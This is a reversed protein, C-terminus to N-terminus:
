KFESTWGKEKGEDLVVLLESLTMGREEILKQRLKRMEALYIKGREQGKVDDDDPSSPMKEDLIRKAEAVLGDFAACIAKRDDEGVRELVLDPEKYKKPDDLYDRLDGPLRFSKGTINELAARLSKTCKPRYRWAKQAALMSKGKSEAARQDGGGATGTDVNVSVNKFEKEDPYMEWWLLMKKMASDEAHRGYVDFVGSVIDDDEHDILDEMEDMAKAYGLSGIARVCALQLKPDDESDELLKRLKGGVKSASSHQNGLGDAAAARVNADKDKLLKMLEGAISPHQVKAFSKVAKLKFDIDATDFETKFRDMALKVAKADADPPVEDAARAVSACPSAADVWAAGFALLAATLTLTTLRKM